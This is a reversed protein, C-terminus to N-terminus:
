KTKLLEILFEYVRESSPINLREDTSHVEQMTPGFSICDADGLKEVFVGCEVGAHIAVFRPEKNYMKKYVATVKDRIPSEVKYAWGPYEGHQISKAGALNAVAVIKDCLAQRASDYSSRVLCNVVLKDEFLEAKGINVSTEVLGEVDASFADVGQPLALLLDMLRESDAKHLANVDKQEGLYAYEIKLNPEKTKFEDKLVDAYFELIEMVDPNPASCIFKIYGDRAIVNDKEGFKVDIIRTRAMKLECLFRAIVTAASIRNDSINIGSHGSKLGSVSLEYVMANRIKREVPLEVDLKAGGACSTLFEGEEENDMNLIVRGKLLSGDFGFAGDMATEENVTFVAELAPHEVADSALIDLVYAVAIGDDGGLSTGKASLWEGDVELDLGDKLLDKDCGNEKVAVMDIHGQLCLVQENEYGETADKYIVVNGLKDQVYKLNHNKAFECLYNSIMDTNYSGHPIASIEEFYKWFSANGIQM